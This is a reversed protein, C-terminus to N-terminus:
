ESYTLTGILRAEGETQLDLDLSMVKLVRATQQYDAETTSPAKFRFTRGHDLLGLMESNEQLAITFSEGVEPKERAAVDIQTTPM